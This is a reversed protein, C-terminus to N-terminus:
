IFILQKGGWESGINKSFDHTLDLTTQKFGFDSGIGTALIRLLKSWPLVIM